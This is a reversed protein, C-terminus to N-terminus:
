LVIVASALPSVGNGRPEAFGTASVGTEIIVKVTLVIKVDAVQV